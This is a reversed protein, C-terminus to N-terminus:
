RLGSLKSRVRRNTNDSVLSKRYQERALDNLRLDKYVDGLHERVVPDGGTIIVARELARRAEGLRGLRYYAWGLSDLYAGNDPEADLARQILALAQDLNRNHDAYLYGLFNLAVPNSPDRDLIDRVAQEAGALDGLKERCAALDFILGNVKPFRAAAERWTQEAEALRKASQLTRALLVRPALSDPTLDVARRLNELARDYDHTAEYVHAALLLPAFDKPREAVRAEAELAAQRGHGHRALITLRAGFADPDDPWRRKLQELLKLGESPAGAAFALDAEVERTELDEPHERALARAEGFAEQHRDERGLVSILRRRAAPDKAHLELHRRYSTAAEALRGLNEEIWGQMFFRGQRLPNLEVGRTIASDAASFRNLRAEAAALQFWAEADDEDLWAIRRYCQAMLPVRDLREAARALTRAYEVQDTDGHAAAELADLSEGDRGLNLLASGKLWLARPDSPDIALAREAFELSQAPDGVVATVESVRRPIGSSQDDLLMARYYERLAEAGSGQEESLRAQAYRRLAEESRYAPEPAAPTAPASLIATVLIWM